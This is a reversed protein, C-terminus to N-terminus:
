QRFCVRVLRRCRFSPDLRKTRKEARLFRVSGGKLRDGDGGNLDQVASEAKLLFRRICSEREALAFLQVGHDVRNLFSGDRKPLCEACFFRAHYVKAILGFSGGAIVLGPPEGEVVGKAHEFFARVPHGREDRRLGIATGGAPEALMDGMEELAVM